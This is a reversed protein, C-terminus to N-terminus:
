QTKKEDTTTSNDEESFDMLAKHEGRVLALGHSALLCSPVLYLLAPQAAQFYIMVFMTVFLGVVYLFLGTNYYTRDGGSANKTRHADFRLLFAIFIGPIVIDGLGLMTFQNGFLGNKPLVLKIPHDINKAVGVMVDTFFVWFIDYFFLGTLLISGTKVDPLGLLGIGQISFAIGFLNNLVWHKTMAYYTAAISSLFVGVIDLNNFKLEADEAVGFTAAFPWKWKLHYNRAHPGHFSSPLIKALIPQITNSLAFVGLFLFYASLLLNVLDKHLFRILMYLSLLVCSGIIPFMYADKQSMHEMQEPSETANRLSLRSGIHVCATALFMMVGLAAYLGVVDPSSAGPSSVDPSSADSGSAELTTAILEAAAQALDATGTEDSM